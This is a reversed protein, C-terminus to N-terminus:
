KSKKKVALSKDVWELLKERNELVEESLQWYAMRSISGDKQVFEFQKSGTDRYDEINNEGVKMYFSDWIYIAFIQGYKYISYGWFMLKATYAPDDWLCDSLFYVLYEPLPKAM